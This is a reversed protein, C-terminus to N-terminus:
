VMTLFIEQLWLWSRTRHMSRRVMKEMHRCGINYGLHLDAILVVNLSDLKGAKKDVSIDYKTQRYIEANIIGYISVTTIIVACVVGM